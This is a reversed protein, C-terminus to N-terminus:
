CREEEKDTSKGACDDFAIVVVIIHVLSEVDKLVRVGTPFAGDALALDGDLLEWGKHGRGVKSTAANATRRGKGEGQEM